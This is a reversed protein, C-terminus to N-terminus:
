DFAEELRRELEAEPLLGNVSCLRGAEGSSQWGRNRFRVNFENRLYLNEEVYVLEWEPHHTLVQHPAREVTAKPSLADM